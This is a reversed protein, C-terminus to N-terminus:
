GGTRGRAPEDQLIEGQGAAAQARNRVNLKKLVRQVHKNVTSISIGLAAAMERNTRGARIHVLVQRERASLRVSDGRARSRRRRGSSALERIRSIMEPIPADKGLYGAAGHALARDPTDPSLSGSLIIVILDPWRTLAARTADLGNEGERFEIDMLVVDVPSRTFAVDLETAEALEWEVTMDVNRELLRRLGSRFVPHDDVIGIRIPANL